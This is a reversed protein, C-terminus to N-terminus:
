GKLAMRRLQMIFEPVNEIITTYENDQTHIRIDGDSDITCTTVIGAYGFKFEELPEALEELDDKLNGRIQIIPNDNNGASVCCANGASFRQGSPSLLALRMDGTADFGYNLHRWEPKEAEALLAEYNAIGQRCADVSKQHIALSGSIKNICQKIQEKDM